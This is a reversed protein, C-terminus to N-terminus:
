QRLNLKEIIFKFREFEKVLWNLNKTSSFDEVQMKESLEKNFDKNKKLRDLAAQILEVTKQDAANNSIFVHWIRLDSSLPITKLNGGYTSNQKYDVFLDVRGAIADPLIPAVGRYPVHVSDKCNLKDLKLAPLLHTSSGVGGSGYIISNTKCYNTLEELTEFRSVINMNSSGAYSVFKFSTHDYNSNSNLSSNIAISSSFFGIITSNSSRIKNLAVLGGAGQAYETTLIIGDKSLEKNLPEEIFRWLRDTPGGPTFPIVVSITTASVFTSFFIFFSLILKKM